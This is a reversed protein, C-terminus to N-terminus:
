AVMPHRTPLVTYRYRAAVQMPIGFLNHWAASRRAFFRGWHRSVPDGVVLPEGSVWDVMVVQWPKADAVADRIEAVM